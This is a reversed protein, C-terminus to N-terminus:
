AIAAEIRVVMDADLKRLGLAGRYPIPEALPRPNALVLHHTHHEAWASCLSVPDALGANFGACGHSEHVDVLDVVGIIAGRNAYWPTDAISPEGNEDTWRDMAAVMAEFGDSWTWSIADQLAVHIAVAGRYSGAIDTARNEVSKSGHIIAWAWPQRVTLIRMEAPILPVDSDRRPSPTGELYTKGAAAAAANPQHERCPESETPTECVSCVYGGMGNIVIWKDGADPFDPVPMHQVGACWCEVESLNGNDLEILAEGICAGHKGEECDRCVARM